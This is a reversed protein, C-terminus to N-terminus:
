RPQNQERLTKRMERQEAALAILDARVRGRAEPNLGKLMKKLRRYEDATRAIKRLLKMNKESM